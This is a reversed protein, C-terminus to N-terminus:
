LGVIILQDILDNTHGFIHTVDFVRRIFSACKSLTATMMLLNSYLGASLRGKEQHIYLYVHSLIRCREEEIIQKGPKSLGEADPNHLLLLKYLVFLEKEVKLDRLVKYVGNKLLHFMDCANLMETSTNDIYCGDPYNLKEGIEVGPEQKVCPFSDDDASYYALHLLPWIPAAAKMLALKDSILLKERVLKITKGWEIMLSLDRVFWARLSDLSCPKAFPTMMPISNVTVWQDDELLCRNHISSTASSNPEFRAAKRVAILRAEKRVLDEIIDRLEATSEQEFERLENELNAQASSSPTSTNHYNDSGNSGPSGPEAKVGERLKTEERRRELEAERQKRLQKTYRIKDRDNQIAKPDMGMDFCKKLRCSRCVCRVAKGVECEGKFQCQFTQKNVLARRFFTKCGNCSAVSYHIGSALDQCVVCLTGEPIKERKNSPMIVM